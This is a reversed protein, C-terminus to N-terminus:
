RARRPALAEVWGCCWAGVGSAPSGPAAAAWGRPRRGLVLVLVLVLALV